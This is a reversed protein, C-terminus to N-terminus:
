LKGLQFKTAQEIPLTAPQAGKLIKDVYSAARRFIDRQDTGYSLLGGAHPFESQNATLAVHSKAALEGLRTREGFFMPDGPIVVAGASETIAASFAGAFDTPARAPLIQLRMALAGAAVQAERVSALYYSNGPNVLVAVRSLRPMAEKLLQLARGLPDGHNTMVIPINSTAGKAAVATYAAAVIVDVKLRVLATALGPLREPGGESFRSEIVINEGERYGLEGLGEFLGGWIRAAEPDSLPVTGLLGIRFVRVPQAQAAASGALLLFVVAVVRTLIPRM